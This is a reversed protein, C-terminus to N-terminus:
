RGLTSLLGGLAGELGTSEPVQGHPTLHDVLTPLLGALATNADAQGLGAKQAFAALVDPGLATSLQDPTVPPNPGTAIWQSVLDGMGNREFAAVLGALGGGTSASQSRTSLLSVAAAVVQPHKMAWDAVGGISGGKMLDDFLSM